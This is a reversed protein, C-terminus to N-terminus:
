PFVRIDLFADQTPNWFGRAKIDLRAEDGVIASRYNFTEGSLPQLPPETAVNHCVQSLLNATLDRIENHKM